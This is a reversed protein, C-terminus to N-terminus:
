SHKCLFGFGRRHALNQCRPWNSTLPSSAAREPESPKKGSKRLNRSARFTKWVPSRHTSSPRDGVCGQNNDRGEWFLFLHNVLQKGEWSKPGGGLSIKQTKKQKKTKWEHETNTTRTHKHRHTDLTSLGDCSTSYQSLKDQRVSISRECENIRQKKIGFCCELMSFPTVNDSPCSYVSLNHQDSGLLAADAWDNCFTLLSSWEHLLTM